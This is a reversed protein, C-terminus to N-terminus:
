FNKFLDYDFTVFFQNMRECRRCLGQIKFGVRFVFKNNVHSNRTLILYDNNNRIILILCDNALSHEEDNFINWTWPSDDSQTCHIPYRTIFSM